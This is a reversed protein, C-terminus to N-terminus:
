TAIIATAVTAIVLLAGVGMVARAPGDQWNPRMIGAIGVLVAFLALLGGVVYFATADKTEHPATEALLTVLDM